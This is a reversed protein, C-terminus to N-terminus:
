LVLETEVGAGVLGPSATDGLRICDIANALAEKLPKPKTVREWQPFTINLEPHRRLLNELEGIMSVRREEIQQYPWLDPCPRWIVAGPVIHELGPLNSAAM